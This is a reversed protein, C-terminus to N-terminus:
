LKGDSKPWQRNEIIEPDIQLTNCAAIQLVSHQILDVRRRKGRGRGDVSYHTVSLSNKGYCRLRLFHSLSLRFEAM